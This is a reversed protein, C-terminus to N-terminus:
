IKNQSTFGQNNPNNNGDICYLVKGGVAIIPFPWNIDTIRCYYLKGTIFGDGGFAGYSAVCNTFTGSVPSFYGFSFDGGKCNTFIGSTTGGSGFSYSGAECNTFKGSASNGGIFSADAGFSSAFAICNTFTGSATRGFSNGGGKCDIFIGSAIGEGGFSYDSNTECNIFTGLTISFGTFSGSGGECNEIKISLSDGIKFTIFAGTTVGKVFVNHANVLIGGNIGTFSNFIISRNGDLSVLDIWQTDMIFDTIGFNYYGPAAIITIKNAASPSMAQATIYAAQLEAANEVDTGNAAVYVYNTGELESGQPITPENNLTTLIGYKNKYVIKDTDLSKFLEVRSDNENAADRNYKKLIDM